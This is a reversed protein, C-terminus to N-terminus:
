LPNPLHLFTQFFAIQAFNHLVVYFHWFCHFTNGVGDDKHVTWAYLKALAIEMNNFLFEVCQDVINKEKSCDKIKYEFASYLHLLDNVPIIGILERINMRCYDLIMDDPNGDFDTTDAYCQCNHTVKDMLHKYVDIGRNFNPKM